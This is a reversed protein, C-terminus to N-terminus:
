HDNSLDMLENSAAFHDYRFEVKRKMLKSSYKQLSSGGRMRWKAVQGSTYNSLFPLIFAQNKERKM